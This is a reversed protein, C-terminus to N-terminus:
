YLDEERRNLYSSVSFWASACSILIGGAIVAVAVYVLTKIDMVNFVDGVQMQLLYIVSFLIVNGLLASYLGMLLGEGVFPRCVFGAKAGVLQMTKILFRKAFIYQQITNRILVFSILLLVGITLLMILSIHKINNSILEVLSKQYVFEDVVEEKMIDKEIVNVSDKDAYDHYLRIEISPRLPNYGLVKEFDEGLEKKFEEAAREKSIYESSLVYPKSELIKRLRAVEVDKAGDKIVVSCGLSERVSDALNKANLLIFFLAGSVTLVLTISLVAAVYSGWNAGKNSM